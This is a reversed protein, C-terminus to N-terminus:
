HKVLAEPESAVKVDRVVKSAATKLSVDFERM